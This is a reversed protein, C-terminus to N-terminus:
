LLSGKIAVVRGLSVALESFFEVVEIPHTVPTPSAVLEPM